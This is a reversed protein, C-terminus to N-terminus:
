LSHVAIHSDDILLLLMNCKCVTYFNLNFDLIFSSYARIKSIHNHTTTTHSFAHTVGHTPLHTTTITHPHITNGVPLHSSPRRHRSFYLRYLLHHTTEKIRYSLMINIEVVTMTHLFPTMKRELSEVDDGVYFRVLRTRHRVM